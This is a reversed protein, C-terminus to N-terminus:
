SAAVASLRAASVALLIGVSFSATFKGFAFADPDLFLDVREEFFSFFFKATFSQLFAFSEALIWGVLSGAASEPKPM